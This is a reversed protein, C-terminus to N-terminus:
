KEPSGNKKRNEEMQARYKRGVNLGSSLNSGRVLTRTGFKRNIADYAKDLRRAKEKRADPFLTLQGSDERTLETLSIGLLRLPTRGDWLEGFLERSVAYVETSIDTPEALKRQHSRTRFDNSRISVAVCGAKAGDERMRAAVSDTLALLVGHAQQATVVDTELTTSVSYGKPEEPQALVPSPDIGNAFDHIQQGLKGGVIRQVRPLDCQALDGITRLGAKRLKEATSAGVTFLDGVPLVWMKRGVERRFLTHVRDPKEFDSAMKALLRNEGVGVNVTFGLRDRIADKIKCAAAIPDPYLRATGSMDLFCEDISYKEVVPAYERCIDMFARSCRTYLAFDPEACALGPCKRLAASVPEGTQIGFAKAPISKALVIGTRKQSDGGIIAPIDRLDQEGRSVRRASEWSLFASNVDVHFILRELCGGGKGDANITESKVAKTLVFFFYRGISRYKWGTLFAECLKGGAPPLPIRIM